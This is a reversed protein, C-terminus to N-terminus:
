DDERDLDKLFTLTENQLVGPGPVTAWRGVLRPGTEIKYINVGRIIGAKDSPLAWSVALTNGQRIGIGSFNAGDGIMWQVTYVESRRSIVAVGSYAKGNAEQGRCTYYGSIDGMEDDSIRDTKARAVRQEPRNAAVVCLVLGVFLIRRIM